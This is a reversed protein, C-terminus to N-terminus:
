KKLYLMIYATGVFLMWDTTLLEHPMLVVEQQEWQMPGPLLSLKLTLHNNWPTIGMPTANRVPMNGTHTKGHCDLHHCGLASQMPMASQPCLASVWEELLATPLQWQKRPDPGAESPSPQTEQPFASGGLMLGTMTKKAKTAPIVTNKVQYGLRPSTHVSLM